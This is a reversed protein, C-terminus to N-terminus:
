YGSFSLGTEDGLLDHRGTFHLKEAVKNILGKPLALLRASHDHLSMFIEYRLHWFIVPVGSFFEDKHICLYWQHCSSVESFLAASFIYVLDCLYIFLYSSQHFTVQLMGDTVKNWQVGIQTYLPNRWELGQCKKEWLVVFLWNMSKTIWSAGCKAPFNYGM